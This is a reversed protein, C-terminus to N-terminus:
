IKKGKRNSVLVVRAIFRVNKKAVKVAPFESNAPILQYGGREKKVKRICRRKHFASILYVKGDVFEADRNATVYDKKKILPRMSDDQMRIVILGHALAAFSIVFEAINESADEAVNLDDDGLEDTIIILLVIVAIAPLLHKM